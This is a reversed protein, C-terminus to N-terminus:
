KQKKIQRNQPCCETPFSEKPKRSMTPIGALGQPLWGEEQFNM